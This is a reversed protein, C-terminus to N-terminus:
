LRSEKDIKVPPTFIRYDKELVSDIEIPIGKSKLHRLIARRKKYFRLPFEYTKEKESEKKIYLRITPQSYKSINNYYEVNVINDNNYRIKRNRTRFLYTIEIYDDYFNCVNIWLCLGIYILAFSFIIIINSNAHFYLLLIRYLLWVFFLFILFVGLNLDTKYLHRQKM